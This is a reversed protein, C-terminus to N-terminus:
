EDMVVYGARAPAKGLRIDELMKAKAVAFDIAHSRSAFVKAKVQGDIWDLLDPDITTSLHVRGSKKRGMILRLIDYYILTNEIVVRMFVVLFIDHSLIAYYSVLKSIRFFV